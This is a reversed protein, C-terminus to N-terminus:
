SWASAPSARCSRRRHLAEVIAQMMLERNTRAFRQAWAVAAVYDDFHESGEEFYALDKDPLNAVHKKMDKKALEIFHTGIRNGVGRSGSHLMIWVGDDEALCLEIFHNGPGSRASTTRRRQRPRALTGRSSRRTTAACGSGRTRSAAPLVSFAGRDNRRRPRHPRAAGRARDGRAARAAVRAPRARPPLDSAAMMGCGIDVGVAAPIIAGKTPIVSGVTAGIGWHVDPMPAIWRHIFPLSAVNVLQKRAEDELQVGDVWAKIPFKGGSIQQYPAM